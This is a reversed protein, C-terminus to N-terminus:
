FFVTDRLVFRGLRRYDPRDKAVAWLWLDVEPLAIKRVWEPPNTLTLGGDSSVTAPTSHAVTVIRECAHIAAARLVYAQDGNLVPGDEYRPPAASASAAAPSEAVPASEFLSPQNIESSDFLTSLGLTTAQDLRIIGLYVLLSPIVNDSFIPFDDTSCTPTDTTGFRIKIAHILFLAKKFCYIAIAFCLRLVIM